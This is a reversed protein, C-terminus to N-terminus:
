TRREVPWVRAPVASEMEELGADSARPFFDLGSLAEVRGVPVLFEALNVPADIPQHPVLFALVQTRREQRRLLVKYYHTPVGVARDSILPYEVKDSWQTPLFLTGTVVYLEESEAAWARVSEELARWVTKRFRDGLMPAVNSLLYTADIVEPKGVHNPAAALRGRVFGSEVYDGARTRLEAPLSEDERFVRDVDPMTGGVRAPDLREMVWRPVRRATDYSLVYAPRYRLCETGPFGDKMIEGAIIAEDGLLGALVGDDETGPPAACGALLLAILRM